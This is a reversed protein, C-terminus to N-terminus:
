DGDYVITELPHMYFFVKGFGYTNVKRSKELLLKGSNYIRNSVILLSVNSVNKKYKDINLSKEKIIMEIKDETIREVWGFSDDMCKWYSYDGFSSPLREIFLTTKKSNIIIDHEITIWEQFETTLLYELIKDVSDKNFPGRINLLIPVNKEAYYKVSLESLLDRRFSEDRKEISGKRSEDVYMDRVELGFKDHATKILLDPWDDENPPVEVIWDYGMDKSLNEAYLIETQKQIERTM